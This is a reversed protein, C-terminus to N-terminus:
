AAAPEIRWRMAFPLMLGRIAQTTGDDDAGPAATAFVITSVGGEDRTEAQVRAGLGARELRETLARLVAADRLAPKFIKGVATQPLSPLFQLRKPWAPREPIFARAYELVEQADASAGDKLVAYAVPLEGAYEDPEGVAAALLVAPHRMLADEILRPDINHGSRVIVDKARGTIYIRGDAGVQGIDGTLLWGDSFTGANREPETYGPVVNPGQVALIGPTGAPLASGEGDVTRVRTYPLPFGCSGRVREAAVPEISIVGACETMGFINRVPIAFKRECADALEDPLPSGGTLMARVRGTQAGTPSSTSLMSMVTPVVALLTVGHKDVFEWYQEVFRKNRMGLLTPLVLEAGAMLTSLGYVFAGAVHFLPFGNLMVDQPTMGYMHAAGWAAHLQNGHAHQALKPRGTTGGTHFLAAVTDRGAPPAALLRDGRAAALAADFGASGDAGGVALIRVHPCRHRVAEVKSWIDLEAHPGLAVLINAGTAEVLEAVHEAGLLYNIPCVVGATEAGLLTFWAQPINPLLMAVRPARGDALAHFVNAARVVQERLEPYTWRLPAAALEAATIYTLAPQRPWRDAAHDLAEWVTGQPLFDDYPRGQLAEIADLTRPSQM